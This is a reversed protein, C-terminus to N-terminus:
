RDLPAADWLSSPVAKREILVIDKEFCGAARPLCVPESM